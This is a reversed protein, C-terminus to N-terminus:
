EGEIGANKASGIGLIAVKGGIGQLNLVGLGKAFQKSIVGAPVEVVRPWGPKIQERAALVQKAVQQVQDRRDDVGLDEGNNDDVHQEEEASQGDEALIDFGAKKGRQGDGCYHKQDVDDIPCYRVFHSKM